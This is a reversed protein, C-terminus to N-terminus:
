IFLSMAPLLYLGGAIPGGISILLRQAESKVREEPLLKALYMINTMRKFLIALSTLDLKSALDVRFVLSM